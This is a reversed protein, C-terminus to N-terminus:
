SREPSAADGPSSKGVSPRGPGGVSNLVSKAQTDVFQTFIQQAYGFIVAWAVIQASSDLAMFGPVFSGRMLLLGLVATLAGTPLKLLALAVPVNYPTSTGRMSRLSAASAIAAAVLGAFEVVLYDRWTVSTGTPCVLQEDPKFCLPVADPSIGAFVAVMVAVIALVATVGYTIHAFSRVRLNEKLQAQRATVVADILVERQECTLEGGARTSRNAPIEATVHRGGVTADEVPIGVAASPRFPAGSAFLAHCYPCGCLGM